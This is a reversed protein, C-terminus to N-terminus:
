HAQYFSFLFAFRVSLFIVFQKFCFLMAERFFLTQKYCFHIPHFAYSTGRKSVCLSSYLLVLSFARTSDVVVSCSFCYYYVGPVDRVVPPSTTPSRSYIEINSKGTDDKYTASLNSQSFDKWRLTKSISVFVGHLNMSYAEFLLPFFYKRQLYASSYLFLNHTLSHRHM